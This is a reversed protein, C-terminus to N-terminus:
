SDLLERLLAAADDVDRAPQYGNDLFSAHDGPFAVAQRGLRRAVARAGRAATQEGSGSGYAIVLRAGLPALADVDAEHLQCAPSNRMIPDDRSGDDDVPQGFVAPDPAPRELFSADLEGSATVLQIFEAMAPGRGRAAYTAKMHETAALLVDRDPLGDYVPPEHAVAVRVDEPHAALWALTNVAGGSSAFVDVPGAGLAAVVRHLDEAHQEPTVDDTARPNRGAGRPDYTVVGRDTFHAALSTFGSAAMPSGFLFLPTAAGLDGRVDYTILDAGEDVTSTQVVTTM